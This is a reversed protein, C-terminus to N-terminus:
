PHPLSHPLVFLVNEPGNSLLALLVGVLVAALLLAAGFLIHRRRLAHLRWDLAPALANRMWVSNAQEKARVQRLQLVMVERTRDAWAWRLARIVLALAAALAVVLVATVLWGLLPAQADYPVAGAGFAAAITNPTIFWPIDTRVGLLLVTACGYSLYALLPAWWVNALLRLVRYWWRRPYRDDCADPLSLLTHPLSVSASVRHTASLPGSAVPQM